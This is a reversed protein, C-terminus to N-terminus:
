RSVRVHNRRRIGRVAAKVRSGLVIGKEQPLSPPDVFYPKEPPSYSSFWKTYRPIWTFSYGCPAFAYQDAMKSEGGARADTPIIKREIRRCYCWPGIKGVLYFNDVLSRIKLDVDFSQSAMVVINKYQRQYKYYDRWEDRFQKFKRADYEVGVEDLAILSKPKAVYYGLDETKIHVVYPLACSTMNTYIRYGKKHYRMMYKVLVTSKGSGKKGLLFVLKFPSNMKISWFFFFSIVGTIVILVILM